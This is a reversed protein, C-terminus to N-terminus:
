DPDHLTHRLDDSRSMSRRPGSICDQYIGAALYSFYQFLYIVGSKVYLFYNVGMCMNVM